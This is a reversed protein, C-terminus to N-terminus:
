NNRDPHSRKSSFAGKAFAIEVTIMLIMMLIEDKKDGDGGEAEKKMKIM